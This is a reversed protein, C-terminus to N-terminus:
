PRNAELAIRIDVDKGVVVTAAWSGVGVGYDRRDLTTEAEFSAVQAVGGLMESMEEPIDKSGLIRIPLEVQKTVGKITLDGVALLQDAAVQRVETSWFTITPFEDAQFFDGSKLHNDRRENGTQISAVEITVRVSNSTPNEADFDLDIEYDAFAGTVPTFFHKVSFNIETHNADVAWEPAEVPAPAAAMSSAAIVAIAVSPTWRKM